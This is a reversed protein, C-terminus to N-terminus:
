WRLTLGAKVGDPSPRLMPSVSVYPSTKVQAVTVTLLQAAAAVLLIGGEGSDAAAAAILGAAATGTSALMTAALSGRGRNFAHAGLGAGVAEGLLLGWFLGDCFEYCDKGAGILAGGVAGTTGGLLAGALTAVPSANRTPPPEQGYVEQIGTTPLFSLPAAILLTRKLRHALRLDSM